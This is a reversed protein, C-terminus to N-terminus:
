KKRKRKKRNGIASGLKLQKTVNNMIKNLEAIGFQRYLYKFDMGKGIGTLKKGKIKIKPFLSSEDLLTKSPKYDTIYKAKSPKYLYLLAKPSPIKGYYKSPKYSPYRTKTIPYFSKLLASGYKDPSPYGGYTFSSIYKQFYSPKYGKPSKGKYTPYQMIGSIATPLYYSPYASKPYMYDYGFMTYTIKPTVPKTTAKLFQAFSGLYSKGFSPAKSPDIFLELHKEARIGRWRTFLGSKASIIQSRAHTIFDPVDKFHRYATEKLVSSIGKRFLQEGGKMTKIKIPLLIKDTKFWTTAIQQIKPYFPKKQALQIYLEAWNGWRPYLQHLLEHKLVKVGTTRSPIPFIDWKTKSIAFQGGRIYSAVDKSLYIKPLEKFTLGYTGYKKPLDSIIVKIPQYTYTHTPKQSIFGFRHYGGPHYMERGHIDILHKGSPTRIRSFFGKAAGVTKKSGTLFDTWKRVLIDIDRPQRAGIVQTYSAASGGITTRPHAKLFNLLQSATQKDMRMIDKTFDLPKQKVSEIRHLLRSVKLSQEFRIWQPSGPEYTHLKYLYAETRGYGLQYGKKYGILMSPLTIGIGLLDKYPDKSTLLREGTKFGGYGAMGFQAIKGATPYAARLVGMGAGLGYGTVM